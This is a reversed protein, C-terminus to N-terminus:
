LLLYDMHILVFLRFVFSLFFFFVCFFLFWAYFWFFLSSVNFVKTINLLYLKKYIIYIYSAWSLGYGFECFHKSVAVIGNERLFIWSGLVFVNCFVFHICASLLLLLVNMSDCTLFCGHKFNNFLLLM